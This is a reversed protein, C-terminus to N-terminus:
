MIDLFIHFPCLSGIRPHNHLHLGLFIIISEHKYIDIYYKYYLNQHIKHHIHITMKQQS